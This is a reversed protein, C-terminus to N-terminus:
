KAQHLFVFTGKKNGVVIDPLKDGNLDGAVVQTGVGSDNDILYPIFDVDSGKRVLKFWYLVPPSAPDVDGTAGHAWFRKGTVIDKLGDGDMDVLDVAHHQTFIVGYANPEPRKDKVAQENLILHKKFTIEGGEKVQEFWAFGYGHPNLSTIVDNLGDGNVDYAYM